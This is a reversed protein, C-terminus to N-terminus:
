SVDAQSRKRESDGLGQRSVEGGRRARSSSQVPELGLERVRFVGHGEGAM